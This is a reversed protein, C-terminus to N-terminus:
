SAMAQKQSRIASYGHKTAFSSAEEILSKLSEQEGNALFEPGYVSHAAIDMRLANEEDLERLAHMIATNTAAEQCSAVGAQHLLRIAAKIARNAYAM